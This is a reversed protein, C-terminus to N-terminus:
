CVCGIHQSGVGGRYDQHEHPVLCHAALLQGKTDRRGDTGTPTCSPRM